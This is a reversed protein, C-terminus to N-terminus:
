GYYYVYQIHWLVINHKQPPSPCWPNSKLVGNYCIIVLFCLNGPLLDHAILADANCYAIVVSFNKAHHLWTGYHTTGQLNNFVRKVALHYTRPAHMVLFSFTRIAYSIDLQTMTLYRLAGVM